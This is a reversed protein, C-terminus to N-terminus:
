DNFMDDSELFLKIKKLDYDHEKINYIDILKGDNFVMICPVDGINNGNIQYKTIAEKKNNHLIDTVNLYLIKGGLSNDMVLSKFNIEFKRIEENELVSTYIVADKNETLYSDLENYNIVQLYRDMIPINLKGEEYALFWLYFYFVLLISILLIGGLYFYNKVPIKRDMLM